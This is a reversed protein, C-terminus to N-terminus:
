SRFSMSSHENHSAKSALRGGGALLTGAKETKTTSITNIVRELQSEDM